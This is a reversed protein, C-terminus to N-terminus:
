SSAKIKTNSSMSGFPYLMGSMSKIKKWNKSRIIRNWHDDRFGKKSFPSKLSRNLPSQESGAVIDKM